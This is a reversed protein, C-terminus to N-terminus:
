RRHPAPAGPLSVCVVRVPSDAAVTEIVTLVDAWNLGGIDSGIRPLGISPVDHRNAHEVALALASEIADLRADPGINHQSALNYIWNGKPTQWAHLGGVRLRGSICLYRYESYMQPWWQKFQVAIGKGMQGKCNVGQGIAALDTQQFLDGTRHEVTM